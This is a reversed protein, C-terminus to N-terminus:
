PKDLIAAAMKTNPPKNQTMAERDLAAIIRKAESYTRDMRTSLYRIVSPSPMVQRDAFLKTLLVALLEDDPEEIHVPTTAQMRSALDPLVLPWRSPATKATLLLPIDRARLNNHLHFLAENQDLPLTDADEVVVPTVGEYAKPIAGVTVVIANHEQEFIRALHSKGSGAPGVLVLKREPWAEPTRLMTVANRNADSVYFDEASLGEPSPWDFILQDPM